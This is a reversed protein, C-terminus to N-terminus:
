CLQKLAAAFQMEFAHIFYGSYRFSELMGRFRGDLLVLPGFPLRAVEALAANSDLFSSIYDLLKIVLSCSVRCHTVSVKLPLALLCLLWLM